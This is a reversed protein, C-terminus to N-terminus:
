RVWRELTSRKIEKEMLCDKMPKDPRLRLFNPMRYHGDPTINLYKIEIVFAEAVKGDADLLNETIFNLDEDTFGGGTNCVHILAGHKDYQYCKLASFKGIRKDTLLKMEDPPIWGMVIVDASKENKVKLWDKSRVGEQYPANLNKLIIGEGGDRVARDFLFYKEKFDPVVVIHNIRTDFIYDLLKAKRERLPLITLDQGNLALIDFVWYVMKYKQKTDETMRASIFEEKNEKNYAVLEGDLVFSSAKKMGDIKNVEEIIEPYASSLETKWSRTWFQINLPSQKIMIARTGDFKWEAIWNDDHMEPCNKDARKALMVEIM